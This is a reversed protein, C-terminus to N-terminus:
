NGVSKGTQDFGFENFLLDPMCNYKGKCLLPTNEPSDKLLFEPQNASSM